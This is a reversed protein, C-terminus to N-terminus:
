LALFADVSSGPDYFTEALVKKDTEFKWEKNAKVGGMFLAKGLSM